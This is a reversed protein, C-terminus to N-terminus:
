LLASRPPSVKPKVIVVRSPPRRRSLGAPAPVAEVRPRAGLTIVPLPGGGVVEVTSPVLGPVVPPRGPVVQVAPSRSPVVAPQTQVRSPRHPVASTQVGAPEVVRPGTLSPVLTPGSVHM